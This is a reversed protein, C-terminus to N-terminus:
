HTQETERRIAGYSSMKRGHGETHSVAQATLGGENEESLDADAFLRSRFLFLGIPSSLTTAAILLWLKTGDCDKYAPCYHELAHGSFGGIFGTALFMPVTAFGSYTAERGVPAVAVSYEYLKPSWIAEGISLSLVFCLCMARSTEAALFLPSMGSVAAGLMFVDSYCFRGRAILLTVLPTLLLICLPNIVLFWEFEAEPGFSRTFYKPFTADLHRFVSKVGVFILVLVLFRQFRRQGLVERVIEAWSEAQRERELASGAVEDSGSPSRLACALLLQLLSAGFAAGAITRWISAKGEYGPLRVGAGAEAELSRRSAAIALVSLLAAVNMVVYFLSFGMARSAPSTYRRVGVTLAPMTLATGIPKVTVLAVVVQQASTAYAIGGYGLVLLFSGLLLACRVGLKDTAVGGLLCVFGMVFGHAGYVWGATSDDMGFDDTLYLVLVNFLAFYSFSMLAKLMYVLWLEYPSEALATMGGLFEESQEPVPEVDKGKCAENQAENQADQVSEAKKDTDM